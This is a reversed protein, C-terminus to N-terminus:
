VKVISIGYAELDPFSLGYKACFRHLYKKIHRYHLDSVLEKLKSDFDIQTIGESTTKEFKITGHMSLICNILCALYFISFDTGLNNETKLPELGKIAESFGSNGTEDAVTSLILEFFELFKLNIEYENM